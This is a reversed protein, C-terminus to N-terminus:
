LEDWPGFKEAVEGSMKNIFVSVPEVTVRTFEFKTWSSKWPCRARRVPPEINMFGTNV